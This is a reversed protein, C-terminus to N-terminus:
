PNHVISAQSRVVFPLLSELLKRMNAATGIHVEKGALEVVVGHAGEECRCDGGFWVDSIGPARYTRYSFWFWKKRIVTENHSVTISARLGCIAIACLLLCVALGRWGWVDLSLLGVVGGGAVPIIWVNFRALTDASEFFFLPLEGSVAADRVTPTPLTM